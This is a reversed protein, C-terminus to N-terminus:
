GRGGAVDGCVKMEAGELGVETTRGFFEAGIGGGGRRLSGASASGTLGVGDAAIGRGAEATGRAKAAGFTRAGTSTRALTVMWGPSESQFSARLCRPLPERQGSKRATLALRTSGARM